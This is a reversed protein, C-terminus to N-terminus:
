KNSASEDQTANNDSLEDQYTKIVSKGNQELYEYADPYKELYTSDIIFKGEKNYYGEVKPREKPIPSVWEGNEDQVLEVGTSTVRKGRSNRYTGDKQKFYQLIEGDKNIINNYRDIFDGNENIARNYLDVKQGYRNIRENKQNIYDGNSDLLRGDEDTYQGNENYYFYDTHQNKMVVIDTYKEEGITLPVKTFNPHKADGLLFYEENPNFLYIKGNNSDIKTPIYKIPISAVENMEPLQITKLKTPSGGQKSEDFVIHIYQNPDISFSTALPEDFEIAKSIRMDKPEFMFLVSKQAEEGLQSLSYVADYRGDVLDSDLTKPAGYFLGIQDKELLYIGMYNDFFFYIANDDASWSSVDAPLEFTGRFNPKISKQQDTPLVDSLGTAQLYDSTLDEFMVYTNLSRQKAVPITQGYDIIGNLKNKEPKIYTYRNSSKKKDKVSYYLIGNYAFAHDINKESLRASGIKKITNKGVGLVYVKGLNKDIAYIVTNKNSNNKTYTTYMDGSDTIYMFESNKTGQLDIEAVPVSNSSFTSIKGDNTTLAYDITLHSLSNDADKKNGCGVLVSSLITTAALLLIIKKLRKM